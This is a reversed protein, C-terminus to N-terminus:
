SINQVIIVSSIPATRFSSLVTTPCVWQFGTLLWDQSWLNVSSSSRTICSFICLVCKDFWLRIGYVEQCMLLHACVHVCATWELREWNVKSINIGSKVWNKHFSLCPPDFTMMRLRKVRVYIIRGKRDHSHIQTVSKGM